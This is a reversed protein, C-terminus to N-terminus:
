AGPAKSTGSYLLYGSHLLYSTVTDLVAACIGLSPVEGVSAKQHKRMERVSAWKGTVQNSTILSCNSAPSYIAYLFAPVLPHKKSDM